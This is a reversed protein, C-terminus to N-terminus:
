QDIIAKMTDFLKQPTTIPVDLGVGFEKRINEFSLPQPSSYVLIPYVTKGSVGFFNAADPESQVCQSELMIEEMEDKNEDIRALIEDEPYEAWMRSFTLKPLAKKGGKCSILFAHSDITAVVDIEFGESKHMEHLYKGISPVHQVTIRRPGNMSSVKSRISSIVHQEFEHGIYNAYDGSIETSDLIKRVYHDFHLHFRFVWDAVLLRGGELPILPSGQLSHENPFVLSEYLKDASQDKTQTQLQVRLWRSEIIREKEEVLKGLNISATALDDLRFGYSSRCAANLKALFPQNAFMFSYFQDLWELEETDTSARQVYEGLCTYQGEYLGGMPSGNEVIVKKIYKNDKVYNWKGLDTLLSNLLIVEEGTISELVDERLKELPRLPVYGPLIENLASNLANTARWWLADYNMLKKGLEKSMGSYISPNMMALFLLEDTRGNLADKIQAKLTIICRIAKSYVNDRGTIELTM